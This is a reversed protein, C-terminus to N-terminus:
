VSSGSSSSSSSTESDSQGEEVQARKKKRAPKVEEVSEDSSSSSSSSSSSEDDPVGGTRRKRKRKKKPGAQAGTTRPPPIPNASSPVPKSTPAADGFVTKTPGLVLGGHGIEVKKPGPPAQEGSIIKKPAPHVEKRPPLTPTPTDVAVDGEPEEEEDEGVSWLVVEARRRKELRARWRKAGGQFDWEWDEKEQEKTRLRAKMHKVAAEYETRRRARDQVDTEQEMNGEDLWKEDEARIALADKRIRSRAKFGQLGRLYSILTPDHSSPIHPLSFLHKLLHNQLPKSFKWNSLDTHHTTLYTLAPHITYPAPSQPSSKAQPKTKKPKKPKKVPAPSTSTSSQASTSPSTPLVEPPTISKLAPSLTSSDFSPDSAIQSAFWTKYIQKVSDGDEAKTETTFSVSKRKPGPPTMPTTPPAEITGGDSASHATGNTEETVKDSKIKSRKPKKAPPTTSAAGAAEESEATDKRKKGNFIGDALSKQGINAEESVEKAFKLKLGLKKWAPIHKPAPENIPSM